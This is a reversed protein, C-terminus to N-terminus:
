GLRKLVDKLINQVERLESVIASTDITDESESGASSSDSKKTEGGTTQTALGLDSRLQPMTNNKNRLFSIKRIVEINEKTYHRRGNIRRVGRLEPYRGEWNRLTSDNVGTLAVVERVQYYRKTRPVRKNM